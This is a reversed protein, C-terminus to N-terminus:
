RKGQAPPRPLDALRLGDKGDPLLAKFRRVAAATWEDQTVKLNFDIDASRV